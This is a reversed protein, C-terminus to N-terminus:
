DCRFFSFTAIQQARHCYSTHLVESFHMKRKLLVQCGQFLSVESLLVGERTLKTDMTESYSTSFQLLEKALLAKMLSITLLITVHRREHRVANVSRGRPQGPLWGVVLRARCILGRVPCTYLVDNM